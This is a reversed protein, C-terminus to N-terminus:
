PCDAGLRAVERLGDPDLVTTRRYGTTVFGDRRLEALAKHITVEASGTLAAMEPQTLDVGIVLGRPVKHGYSTALQALVRALRVKVPYAGFEVRRQNAWRLRRVVIQNVARAAEPHTNLFLRLDSERVISAVIEGCATVTASRPAGDDMAAMEGVIDGGVRIALLSERGNELSATVKVFGSRLLVVHNSRDGERILAEGPVYRCRTGLRLLGVRIPESLGGLFSRAPWQEPNKAEIQRTLSM